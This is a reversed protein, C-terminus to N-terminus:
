SGRLRRVVCFPVSLPLAVLYRAQASCHLARFLAFLNELFFRNLGDLKILRLSEPRRIAQVPACRGDGLVAGAGLLFHRGGLPALPM